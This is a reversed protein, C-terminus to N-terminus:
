PTLPKRKGAKRQRQLSFYTGGRVPAVGAGRLRLASARAFCCACLALVSRLLFCFGLVDVSLGASGFWLVVGWMSM